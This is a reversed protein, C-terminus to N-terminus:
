QLPVKIYTCDRQSCMHYTVCESVIIKVSYVTWRPQLPLIKPSLIIPLTNYGGYKGSRFRQSIKSSLTVSLTLLFRVNVLHLVSFYHVLIGVWTLGCYSYSICQRGGDFCDTFPGVMHALYVLSGTTKSYHLFVSSALIAVPCM